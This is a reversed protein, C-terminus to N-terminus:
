AGADGSGASSTPGTPPDLQLATAIARELGFIREELGEVRELIQTNGALLRENQAFEQDAEGAAHELTMRDRIAARNVPHRQSGALRGLRMTM